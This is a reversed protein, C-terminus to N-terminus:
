VDNALGFGRGVRWGGSETGEVVAVDIRSDEVEEEKMSGIQSFEDHEVLVITRIDRLGRCPLPEGAKGRQSVEGEGEKSRSAGYRRLSRDDASERARYSGESYRM